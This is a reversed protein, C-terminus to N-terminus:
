PWRRDTADAVAALARDADSDSDTRHAMEAKRKQETDDDVMSEISQDDDDDDADIDRRARHSLVPLPDIVRWAPLSSMLSTLLVGGRVLWMVYGASLSGGLAVSAAAVRAEVASETAVQERVEDFAQRLDKGGVAEATRDPQAVFDAGLVVAGVPPTGAVAPAPVNQVLFTQVVAGGADDLALGLSRVVPSEDFRPVAPGPVDSAGSLISPSVQISEESSATSRANTASSPTDKESAVSQEKDSLAPAVTTVAAESAATNASTNTTDVPDAADPPPLAPASPTVEVDPAPGAIVDVRAQAIAVSFATSGGGTSADSRGGASGSTRDWARVDISATGAFDANPVFRIRAGADAALLLADAHGVAGIADWTLGANLTYQWLGNLDDAAVVAIGFASGADVDSVFGALLDAVAAGENSAGMLLRPLHAVGSLVPADNVAVIGVTVVAVDPGLAANTPATAAVVEFRGDVVSDALPQFVLGAAGQAVTIFDGDLLRTAGDSLYLTGESISQVKFHTVETGDGLNPLLRLDAGTRVDELTTANSVRPADAVAWLLAIGHQVASELGGDDRAVLTLADLTGWANAAPTWYASRLADVIDNSGVAFPAATAASAGIRLSGSQVSKVVFGTIMGDIDTAGSQALLGAFSVVLATDEAGVGIAGGLNSLVPADNVATVDFTITNPTADLDVGGDATGGDDRVQFTFSAYGAGNGNLGPTYVLRGADIDARTVYQSASVAIGNNKLSGALPLSAIRVAGLGHAPTDHMDSLGFHAATFVHSTDELLGLTRDTGSPADNVAGVAIGASATAASFASTGGNLTTDAVGGVTGSTADWARFSLGGAVVGTWNAQPVFRVYTSADALLLRAAAASPSGFASWAGGGDLSYQWTGHSDDVGIVAMGGVAGSDADSVWGGVLASVLTGGDGVADELMPLLGNAGSLVPADNVAQVGLSRTGSVAGAGDSVAVMIQRTATSPAESTNHYTVRRLTAQYAGVSGLGSLTLVGNVGDFVVSIGPEPVAALVDSGAQYGATISVTASALLGSDDSVSLLGDLLVAAGNEVFSLSSQALAVTPPTNDFPNVFARLDIGSVDDDLSGDWVVRYNGGDNMAVAPRQQNGTQHSNVLFEDGFLGVGTGERELLRAYISSEGSGDTGQGFSTWAVVFNRDDDRGIAPAVQDGATTSNVRLPGVSTGGALSTNRIYDAYIGGGSGDEGDSAWAILFDRDGNDAVAPDYQDGATHANVLRDTNLFFGLVSYYRRYVGWGSGDQGDSQWVFMFSGLDNGAVDPSTQDGATSDNVRFEGGTPTGNADFRRAYVGLGSGDQGDSTWTVMFRSGSGDFDVAPRRQDGVTTQNVLFEGGSPMGDSAFRRAYVNGAGAGDGSQGRGTWVVVFDGAATMAVDPEFQDGATTQAVLFEGGLPNGVADFRRGYIGWGAGDQGDIQWVVISSGAEDIAVSASSQMAATSQNVALIHQWKMSSEVALHLTAEIDGTRFELVWDGGLAGDGTLDDSAAVDAGTLEAVSQLWARGAQTGALDCAYFLLDAEEALFVGWAALLSAHEIPDSPGLASSGLAIGQASGHTVIHLADFVIDHRLLDAHIQGLGDSVADLLLLEFNRDDGADALLAAALSDRDAVSADIVLLERRPEPAFTSLRRRDGLDIIPAAPATEVLVEALPAEFTERAVAAVLVSGADASLLCRTELTEFAVARTPWSQPKAFPRFPAVRGDSVSTRRM